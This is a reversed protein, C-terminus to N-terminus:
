RIFVKESVSIKDNILKVLYYGTGNDIKITTLSEGPSTRLIEQGMLDYIIIEGTLGMPQHVYVIDENSYINVNQASTEGIGNPNGFHLIFRNPDDGVEHAFEYVPNDNLNQITGTKLDELYIAISEEFGEIESAEITFMGQVDCEFGLNVTRYENFEPLSNISLIENPIISYLQPAEDLGYIKKVDYQGDYEDTSQQNFTVFMIDNYDNGDVKLKLTNSPTYSDKYFAQSSHIRNAQPITVYPNSGNTLVFFAQMSPIVGGTMTGWGNGNTGDTGNWYVYNGAADDWIWVSNDV